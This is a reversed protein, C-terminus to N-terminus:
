SLMSVQGLTVIGPAPLSAVEKGSSADLAVVRDPQGVWIRAGDASVGLGRIPATLTLGSTTALSSTRVGVLNLGAGIFLTIGDPSVVAATSGGASKARFRGVKAVTLKEGDLRAVTGSTADVVFPDEVAPSLAIAHAPVPGEGFPAPLDICYAFGIILNLTHVFAHVHPKGARAGGSLLDRTHLHDPQHTYLTFLQQHSPAFVAQRGEGRMEEEAGAPVVTKDRTLLPQLTGSALDLARVRYRDPAQPPLYDLVFLRDGEASFAEPEVCGPLTVRRSEGARDAVVVTTQARGEPRYPTAGASRGSALAVNAGAPSVVRPRLDGPVGVGYSTAGTNGLVELRTGATGASGFAIASGDCAVVGDRPAMVIRGARADLLSLGSATEILLLDAPGTGVATGTDTSGTGAEGPRCAALLAAAPLAGALRLVNRRTTM